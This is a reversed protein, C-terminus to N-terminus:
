SIIKDKFQLVWNQWYLWIWFDNEAEKFAQDEVRLVTHHINISHLWYVNRYVQNASRLYYWCDQCFDKEGWWTIQILYVSSIYPRKESCGLHVDSWCYSTKGFSTAYSNTKLDFCSYLWDTLNFHNSNRRFEMLQKRLYNISEFDIFFQLLLKSARQKVTDQLVSSGVFTLSRNLNLFIM